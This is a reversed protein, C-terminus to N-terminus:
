PHTATPTTKTARQTPSTRHVGALHLLRKVSTLSLGHAAAPSAAAAGERYATILKAIDREDLRDRLSWPRKASPRPACVPSTLAVTHCLLLDAAQASHSYATLVEVSGLGLDAVQAKESNRTHSYSGYSV